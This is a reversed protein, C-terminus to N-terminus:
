EAFFQNALAKMCVYSLVVLAVPYVKLLKSNSQSSQPVKTRRQTENYKVSFALHQNITTSHM